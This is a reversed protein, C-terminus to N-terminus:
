SREVKVMDSPADNSSMVDYELKRKKELGAGSNSPQKVSVPLDLSAKHELNVMLEVVAVTSPKSRYSM